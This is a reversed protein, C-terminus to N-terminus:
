TPIKLTFRTGSENSTDLNLDYGAQRALTSALWLGVGLGSGVGTQPQFLTSRATEAIGRGDDCVGIVIANTTRELEVHVDRRAHRIANHILEELIRRLAAPDAEIQLDTPIAPRHVVTRSRAAYNIADDTANEVVSAVSTPQADLIAAGDQMATLWDLRDALRMLRRSARQALEALKRTQAPDLEGSVLESLAGAVTGTPSRVEHALRRGFDGTVDIRDDAM